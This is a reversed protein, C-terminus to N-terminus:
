KSKLMFGEGTVKFATRRNSQHALEREEETPLNEIYEETLLVDNGQADKLHEKRKTLIFNPQSEGYGKSTLRSPDIGKSVLYVVCSKARKASLKENYKDSGRADTHSNIEIELNQNLELFEALKDLVVMSAPRLADSDFDYEIGEIEIDDLPIPKLYFDKILTTTETISKTNVVGADAFYREKQAKIFLEQGFGLVKEYYGKDDTIMEFPERNGDVDKFTLKTNALVERTEFDYTVGELRVRIPENKVEYIDFCHGNECPERDSSMFGKKLKTDWVLYADDYSSNIPMGLNEPLAYEDAERDMVSKFVDLGGISNFGDSSFFLTSSAEHFFPTVEDAESNIPFDLNEAEGVLNGLSDLEIKWLDMGGKGGPKDSSFYMTRGDMTVFPHMSKYGEVNVRTDLKYAEFFQFEIRRALYISRQKLNNDNWRTYFIVNGNNIASAADHQASNMPRGFNTAQKWNGNEDKETWYVDCLFESQQTKPDLIVGKERASSFMVRNDSGFYAVAFSSTGSNFISDAMNIEVEGNYNNADNAYFCGTMSLQSVRILSDSGYDSRIFEEFKDIAEEYKENNMLTKALHFKDEPYGKSNSSIVLHSEAHTYDFTYMYCMAIQHNLYDEMSVSKSSDIDKGKKSLKQNTTQIEYPLVLTSSAATDSLAAKYNILANHYDLKEFYKDAQYIWVSKSQSLAQFQVFCLFIFIINKM